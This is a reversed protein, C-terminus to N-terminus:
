GGFGDGGRAGGRAGRRRVEPLRSRAGGYCGLGRDGDSRRERFVVSHHGSAPGKRDCLGTGVLLLLVFRAPWGKAHTGHSPRDGITQLLGRRPGRDADKGHGLVRSAVVTRAGV